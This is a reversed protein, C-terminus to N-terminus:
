KDPLTAPHQPPARPGCNHARSACALVMATRPLATEDAGLVRSLEFAMLGNLGACVQMHARGGM